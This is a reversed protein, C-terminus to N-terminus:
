SRGRYSTSMSEVSARVRLVLREPALVIAHAGWGLIWREVEVMNGLEMQMEVGGGPVDM